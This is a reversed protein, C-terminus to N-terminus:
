DLRLCTCSMNIKEIKLPEEGDNYLVIDIPMSQGIKAGEVVIKDITTRINPAKDLSFAPNVMKKAEIFEDKYLELTNSSEILLMELANRVATATDRDLSAAKFQLYYILPYKLSDSTSKFETQQFISNDINNKFAIVQGLFPLVDTKSKQFRNPWH